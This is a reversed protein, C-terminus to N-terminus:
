IVKFKPHVFRVTSLGGPKKIEVGYVKKAPHTELRTRYSSVSLSGVVIERGKQEPPREKEFM